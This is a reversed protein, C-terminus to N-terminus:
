NRALKKRETRFDTERKPGRWSDFVELRGPYVRTMWTLPYYSGRIAICLPIVGPTTKSMSSHKNTKQNNSRISVWHWFKILSSPHRVSKKLRTEEIYQCEPPSIFTRSILM